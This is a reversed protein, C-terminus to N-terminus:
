HGHYLAGFARSDAGSTSESMPTQYTSPQTTKMSSGSESTTAGSSGGVDQTTSPAGTSAPQDQAWADGVLLPAACIVIFRLPKM